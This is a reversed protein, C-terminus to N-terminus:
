HGPSKGVLKGLVDENNVVIMGVVGAMQCARAKDVFGCDGRGCLAINGKLAAANSLATACTWPECRVVTCNVISAQREGFGAPEFDLSFGDVTLMKVRAQAAQQQM